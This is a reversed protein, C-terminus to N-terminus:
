EHQYSYSGRNMDTGLGHCMGPWQWGQSENRSFGATALLLMMCYYFKWANQFTEEQDGMWMSLCRQTDLVLWTRQKLNGATTAHAHRKHGFGSPPILNHHFPMSLSLPFWTCFKINFRLDANHNCRQITSAAQSNFPACFQSPCLHSSIYLGVLCLAAPHFLQDAKAPDQSSSLSTQFPPSNVSVLFTCLFTM